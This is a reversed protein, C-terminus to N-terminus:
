KKRVAHPDFADRLGDGILYLCLVTTVILMGPVISLHAAQRFSTQANTLMNGWSPTPPRVGLGLFSLASEVLILTGIQLMLSIILVSFVNPLIHTFMIRGPGAGIAKASIVYERERHAITEGRVLRMTTTWSILVLAGILATLTTWVSAILILLMLAPISNLTTVFWMIVDDIISLSGGRNYGALLGISVGVLIAGVGAIVGVQLSIRGAYLLRALHDRGLHDTGLPHGEAGIPKFKVEADTNKESIDLYDTIVPALLSLVVLILIVIASFMTLYDHRLRRLALQTLSQGETSALGLAAVGTGGAEGPVGGKSSVETAM